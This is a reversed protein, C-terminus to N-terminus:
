KMEIIKYTGDASMETKFNNMGAYQYSVAEKEDLYISKGDCIMESEKPINGYFVILGIHDPVESKASILCMESNGFTITLAEGDYRIKYDSNEIQCGNDDFFISNGNKYPSTNGMVFWNEINTFELESAYSSYLSHVDSTLIICDVSEIDKDSLYKGVYQPNKYHGSLDIIYNRSKYSIVASANNGKGLVAVTFIDRSMSGYFASGCATVCVSLALSVVIYKRN